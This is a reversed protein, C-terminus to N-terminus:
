FCSYIPTAGWWVFYNHLYRCFAVFSEETNLILHASFYKKDNLHNHIISKGKPIPRNSISEEDYNSNDQNTPPEVDLESSTFNGTNVTIKPPTESGSFHGHDGPRGRCGDSVDNDKNNNISTLSFDDCGESYFSHGDDDCNGAEIVKFDHGGLIDSLFVGNDVISPASVQLSTPEHQSPTTVQVV